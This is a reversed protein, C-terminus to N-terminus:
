LFCHSTTETNLLKSNGAPVLEAKEMWLRGLAAPSRQKETKHLSGQTVTKQLSIEGWPGFRLLKRFSPIQSQSRTYSISELNMKTAHILLENKKIGSCIWNCQHKVTQKDMRWQLLKLNNATQAIIFLAALVIWTCTKTDFNWKESTFVQNHSQQTMHHTPFSRRRVHKEEVVWVSCKM